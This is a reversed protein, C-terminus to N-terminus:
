LDCPQTRHVGEERAPTADELNHNMLTGRVETRRSRLRTIHLLLALHVTTLDIVDAEAGVARVEHRGTSVHGGLEDVRESQLHSTADQM